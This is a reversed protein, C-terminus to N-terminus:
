NFTIAIDRSKRPIWITASNVDFGFNKLLPQSVSLAAFAQRWNMTSSSM